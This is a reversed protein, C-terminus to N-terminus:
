GVKEKEMEALLEKVKEEMKEGRLDKARIVGKHDLIYITPFYRINWDQLIGKREAFWHTWPMKEKELFKTLTEKQDDGSVSILVFPKGKLREVMEREHPIMAKCPGCWTAWIDIVVVKGKYNSLKDMKDGDINLCTVEPAPKGIGLLKMETLAGQAQKGLTTRGMAVDGFEKVVKEYLDEAKKQSEETKSTKLHEALALYAQGQVSKVKSEKAIKEIREMGKPGTNAMMSLIQGFGPHSAHREMLLDAAEDMVKPDKGMSMNMAYALAQFSAPDKADTGKAIELAKAAYEGRPLKNLKEQTAPILKQRDEPKAETYEKMAETNLKNFAMQLDRLKKAAETMEVKAQGPVVLKKAQTSEPKKKTQDSEQAFAGTGAAVVALGALWHRM